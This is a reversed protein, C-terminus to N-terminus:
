KGWCMDYHFLNIENMATIHAAAPLPLDLM